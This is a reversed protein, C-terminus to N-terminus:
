PQALNSWCFIFINSNQQSEANKPMSKPSGLWDHAFLGSVKPDDSLIPVICLLNAHGRRLSSVCLDLLTFQKKAMQQRPNRAERHYPARGRTQGSAARLVHESRPWHQPASARRCDCPAYAGRLKGPQRQVLILCSTRTPDLLENCESTQLARRPVETNGVAFNRVDSM